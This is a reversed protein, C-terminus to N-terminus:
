KGDAIREKLKILRRKALENQEKATAEDVFAMAVLSPMMRVLTRAAVERTRAENEGLVIRYLIPSVGPLGIDALALAVPYDSLAAAQGDARDPAPAGEPRSAKALLHPGLFEAAEAARLSGLAAIAELAKATLRDWDRHAKLLALNSEILGARQVILPHRALDKDIPPIAERLNRLSHITQKLHRIKERQAPDLRADTSREFADVAAAAAPIPMM